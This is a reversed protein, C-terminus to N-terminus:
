ISGLPYTRVPKTYKRPKRVAYPLKPLEDQILEVGRQYIKIVNPVVGLVGRKSIMTVPFLCQSTKPVCVAHSKGYKDTYNRWELNLEAVYIDGLIVGLSHFKTKQVQPILKADLIRKLLQLDSKNQRIRAGFESRGLEDTFERHRTLYGEDALSLPEILPPEERSYSNVSLLLLTILATIRPAKKM